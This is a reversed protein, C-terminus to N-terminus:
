REAEKAYLDACYGCLVSSNALDSASIEEPCRSCMYVNTNGCNYCLHDEINYAEAGCEPCTGVPYDPLVDGPACDCAMCNYKFEALERALCELTYFQGCDKCVFTMDEACTKESHPKPEYDAPVTIISSGCNPCLMEKMANAIREDPWEIMLFLLDRERRMKEAKDTDKVIDNWKEDPIQDSLYDPLIDRYIAEVVKRSEAIVEAATIVSQQAYKHEIDNRYNKLDNLLNWAIHNHPVCASINRELQHYNVTDHTKAGVWKLEGTTANRAPIVDRMLLSYGSNKSEEALRSKLLLLIGAYLNRVSSILRAPNEVRLGYDELGLVISKKGNAYLGKAIPDTFAM